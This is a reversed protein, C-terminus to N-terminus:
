SEYGVDWCPDIIGIGEWYYLDSIMDGLSGDFFKGSFTVHEIGKSYDYPFEHAICVYIYWHWAM